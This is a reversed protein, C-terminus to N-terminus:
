SLEVYKKREEGAQTVYTIQIKTSPVESLKKQLRQKMCTIQYPTGTLTKYLQRGFFASNLDSPLYKNGAPDALFGESTLNWGDWTDHVDGFNNKPLM